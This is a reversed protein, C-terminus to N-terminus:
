EELLFSISGSSLGNLQELKNAPLGISSVSTWDDSLDCNDVSPLENRGVISEVHAEVADVVIFKQGIYTLERLFTQGKRVINYSILGNLCLQTLATEVNQRNNNNDYKGLAETVIQGKSFLCRKGKSKLYHYRRYLWIYINNTDSNFTKLMRKYFQEELSVFSGQPEQVIFTKADKQILFTEDNKYEKVKNIISSKKHGEIAEEIAKGTMQSKSIVREGNVYQSFSRMVGKINNFEPSVEVHIQGM